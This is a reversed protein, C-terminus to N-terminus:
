RQRLPGSLNNASLSPRWSPSAPSLFCCVVCPFELNQPACKVHVDRVSDNGAGLLCRRSPNEEAQFATETLGPRLGPFLPRKLCKARGSPAIRCCHSRGFRGKLAVITAGGDEWAQPRPKLFRGKLGSFAPFFGERRQGTPAFFRSPRAFEAPDVLSRM